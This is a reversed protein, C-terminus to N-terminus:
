FGYIYSIYLLFLRTNSLYRSFPLWATMAASLFASRGKLLAKIGRVFIAIILLVFGVFAVMGRPWSKWINMTLMAWGSEEPADDPYGAVMPGFNGLGIGVIPNSQFIEYARDAASLRQVVSEGDNRDEVAVHSLLNM